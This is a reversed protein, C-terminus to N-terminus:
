NDEDGIDKASIRSVDVDRSGFHRDIIPDFPDFSAFRQPGFSVFRGRRRSEEEEEKM